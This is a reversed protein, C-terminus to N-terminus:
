SKRRYANRDVRQIASAAATEDARCHSLIKSLTRHQFVEAPSIKLGSQAARATIQFIFISDGGVEFIDDDLGVQNIGLVLKWIDALLIENKTSPARFPAAAPSSPSHAEQLSPLNRRDVKGNPTLPFATVISFVSPVMYDPLKESLTRRLADLLSSATASRELRLWAVLRNNQVDVVAQAVSPDAELLAEIEGPEIRYGRLKIQNDLRGLCELSGDARWRAMDGTRYVRGSTDQFPDALFRDATLDDRDLYGLAVGDGGILLEGPVGIPQIQLAPNVVYARTNAIPHGILVPGEGTELRTTTSWITTETPGYVNWLSGCRPILQNVLERPVAEGGILAKLDQKGQWEAELLLRWTIPTAQLVTAGCSEMESKLLNGDMTAERSAIVVTAGQTLPLFIELGSIDFSLTTVSLLIDEPTMGPETSMSCLFNVFARHSICVGKPRGTSGSTFIVYAPHEGGCGSPAFGVPTEPHGEDLFVTEASGSPLIDALSSQTVLARMKADEVMFALREQPFLPDMPVYAAGTKLIGLLGIVMEPSREVCLGALDGSGVGLVALRAALKDSEVELERYTLTRGGYRVAVREPQRRAVEAVLAHVPQDRPYDRETANWSDLLTCRESGGLIALMDLSTEANQLVAELLTEYSTLWRQITAADFLDTNYECEIELRNESQSLNFFLDFNVFQKAITGVHFDLGDFRLRDFGSKDINFMVSVLPLRSTDRPLRLERVLSGFTYNQHEYAEIVSQGAASAFDMFPQNGPCRLRLPLFNLCHGVLEDCGTLTQGASPVGIVMDEQGTLRHLLTAYVSLLLSFVTGGLQPARQKLRAFRSADLVLTEMAGSYSKLPPRPRDTPLELAPPPTKFVSVWYDRHERDERLERAYDGFAMPPPLLPIRHSKFANYSRSLEDVIMGFSWGDCVMHHATFLLAHHEPDLIVLQLLLLPGEELHFVHAACHNRLERMRAERTTEDLGSLDTVPLELTGPAPYFIQTTGEASLTSRLAPHRQIVHLIARELAERDLPGNWTIINSENYARNADDGMKASAWIERQAATTPARDVRPFAAIRETGSPAPPLFGAEQMEAVSEGFANVIKDFDEDSHALTLYIPRGEWIHIGKERLYYWLLSAFPLDPAHDIVAFASFHPIHLPVGATEFQENLTRCLQGTRETMQLQLGPGRERLHDLVARAAAMALPHRVFTGAFFTVGVEPFSDDGYTWAGGDLADMFKRKGALVGIPIGGGLVKGYTSMDAEIGFYSQAGGPHCRFGTVIEDFILATGSRATLNRLERMFARPQLGPRRSQVPEVIIAALEGAHARLIELSEPAAYDLVLMNAVLSPPIGPAVPQARYEGNVWAGRVLVEDFMGHYDGTFYAVRHRGTVARALRIAAMVAESGTNCFTARDMGTLECIDRAVSGAVASQPGIEIGTELQHQLARILWDPSHGFFYTGFGMTIDVYANGDIDWITAGKSRNSVIPYVMEKWLANFGAVARPDAYHPRHEATYHKSERTRATYRAILDDLAQRQRDTLNGNQGREVPKYPGFRQPTPTAPMSGQPRRIVPLGAAVELIPPLPAIVAEPPLINELHDTLAAVSSLDGLLQRFTIKTNYRSLLAQSVQTLFLSDFGMEVFTASPDELVKGSLEEILDALSRELRSRHDAAPEPEAKDPPAECAESAEPEGPLGSALAGVGAEPAVWFLKREFPYTPLPIRRHAEERFYADWRPAVGAAWLKGLAVQLARLENGTPQPEAPLSPIATAGEVNQRSLQTLSQGPGCELFHTYGETALASMADSFRVPQRLQRGWYSGDELVEQTMWTGTCSSVWPLRPARASIRAAKETLPPIVPDMMASHFAHSTQLFRAAVRRTDLRTQLEKLLAEPGSVVCLKESNIAAIEMGESLLPILENEPLRVALMAGRPLAQMLRAREALLLLAEELTFTEAIVAAVYEGISHGVLASPRIGWDMWLRALAYEIVFIAPQTLATQHIRQRDEESSEPPPFLVERIDVGLPEELVKACRDVEERFVRETEYLGRGMGLYQAGQGPFLFVGRSEESAALTRAPQRLAQAAELPEAAVISRRYRFARRGCALTFAVDALKEQPRAELHGALRSSQADLAEPSRASLVLLQSPRRSPASPVAEPAEEVVVHANTGGVGFASVGARRPVSGRKWPLPNAVPFFPSTAFDIRPNPNQFHLLAPITEHRLQLVTKILGTAGAAIDLHGIHTKGTGLACFASSPPAGGERFAKTLAAVEIPDGLPTGTGHAEIYSVEGPSVGAAAQAMAIVEAQANLGPAAFGIKDSGDNNVATGRIVALVHDGEALAESLRKLLVIACGHGFVTGKADADFSRCTGDPSVMGDEEYRYDRMQPFTISVGGALAMDCLYSQLANCAQSIAVLSTSCACQIAMVPGRLGLKYAVRTPLFDKDNGAMLPYEGVQYNAALRAGRNALNYLLYSNLSSGAYLGILGPYAAPDYGAVELTEWACELFVRHQPDMIEAERPYVGFFEADFMGAGELLGRAGVFKTGQALAEPTAISCEAEGSSFRTIADVGNLLNAWFGEVSAAGPFRGSMGVIAVPEAVAESSM